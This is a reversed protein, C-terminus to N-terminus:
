KGLGEARTLHSVLDIKLCLKFPKFESIEKEKVPKWLLTFHWSDQGPNSSPNAYGNRIIIVM